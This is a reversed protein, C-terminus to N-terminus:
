MSDPSRTCGTSTGKVVARLTNEFHPLPAPSNTRAIRGVLVDDPAERSVDRGGPQLPFSMTSRSCGSVIPQHSFRGSLSAFMDFNITISMRSLPCPPGAVIVPQLLISAQLAAFFSTAANKLDRWPPVEYMSTSVVHTANGFLYAPYEVRVPRLDSMRPRDSTAVLPLVDADTRSYSAHVIM